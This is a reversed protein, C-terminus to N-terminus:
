VDFRKYIENINKLYDDINFCSQIEEKTLIKLVDEDTLLNNIFSGNNNFADLANRQVLKYAEERLLGKSCLLLLVKQSFVIGGFLNTNKLMNEKHVVLNKITNDLRKLMYDILISTDPFIIREVSSHSIDREHWLPIDELAAISNARVVRALGSLNEASIPNKKHPMASSGKQGKKFGEEAELVETRQLHRLETAIQEIISGILALAQIYQAHIDRAIVQTSFKAPKLNLIGCALREIEPSINSYTGVPGSIQGVRAEELAKELNRKNREFLDIWGCIKVGFTMPEAHVGHSRGICVTNKHEKAKAKLTNLINDIDKLIIKGADQIQLALATDIVDSSTMGMHIYRSNEGTNENVNTLFAILDHNVEREIEDIREVSFSAKQLIENLVEDSIVGLKNYAKCVALEVDLYYQFKSNLDWIQKMEQECYRDIM